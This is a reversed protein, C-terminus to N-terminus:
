VTTPLYLGLTLIGLNDSYIKDFQSVPLPNQGLGVEITYGPRDYAQIFWDKYGAFGSAYPTQEVAYGSAEGFRLAFEYSNPPLYDLFKWYILEGQSHYALILSLDLNRTFDYMARSEPESLASTGVYDRPGPRTFGQSFKIERAQEWEAPYNLNLDTGRVNAKWGEPFPINPYSASYRKATNYYSGSKLTGTAVDVGDPNVMPVVYLTTKSYLEQASIDYIRKGESYAKAYEELFKMLVGSTIWENGHHSANYGVQVKGEGISLSYLKKGMVSNGISGSRLFPYRATLGDICFQLYEYTFSIKGYVVDFGLPVVLRTGIRLNNPDAGPNAVAIARTTTTYRNALVWFSDGRRVQVVEYGRLYPVLRNWTVSGAIGDAMIGQSRQFCEVASQTKNGFIGDIEGAACGSRTLGLQLLEVVSGRAGLRVTEM